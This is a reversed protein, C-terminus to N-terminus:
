ASDPLKPWPHEQQIKLRAALTQRDLEEAEAIAEPTKILDRKIKAEEILPSVFQFYANRRVEDVQLIELEYNEQSLPKWTGDQDAYYRGMIPKPGHMEIWDGEPDPKDSIGNWILTIQKEGHGFYVQEHIIQAEPTEVDVNKM